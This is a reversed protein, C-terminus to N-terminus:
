AVRALTLAWVWTSLPTDGHLETWRKFYGLRYSPPLVTLRDAGIRSEPSPEVGEARADEESIEGLQQVRVQVIDFLMRSESRKMLMSSKWRMGHIVQDPRLLERPPDGDARYVVRVGNGKTYGVTEKIWVRDGAMGHPCLDVCERILSFRGPNKVLRRTQWKFPNAPDIPEAPWVGVKTNLLAPISPGTMILGREKPRIM